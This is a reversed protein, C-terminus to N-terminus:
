PVNSSAKLIQQNMDVTHLMSNEIPYIRKSFNCFRFTFGVINLNYLLEHEIRDFTKTFDTYVVDAQGQIDLESFIYQVLCCLSCNTTFIKEIFEHQDLNILTKVMPYTRNFVVKSFHCM